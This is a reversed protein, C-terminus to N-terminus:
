VNSMPYKSNLNYCFYHLEVLCQGICQVRLVKVPGEGEGLPRAFSVVILHLLQFHLGLALEVEGFVAPAVIGAGQARILVEPVPQERVVWHVLQRVAVGGITFNACFSPSAAHVLM